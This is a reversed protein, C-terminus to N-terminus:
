ISDTMCKTVEDMRQRSWSKEDSDRGGRDECARRWLVRRDLLSHSLCVSLAVASM